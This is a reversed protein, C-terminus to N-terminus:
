GALYVISFNEYKKANKEIKRFFIKNLSERTIPVLSPPNIYMPSSLLFTLRSNSPLSSLRFLEQATQTITDKLGYQVTNDSRM